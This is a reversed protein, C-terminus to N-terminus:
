QIQLLYFRRPGPPNLVNTLTLSFAGNASWTNTVVPTWQTSPLTLNTSTLVIYTTGSSGNAGEITLNTGSLKVGTVNPLASSVIISPGSAALALGLSNTVILAPSFLGTTSYVNTPNQVAGANGDGFSWNWGVIASGDSDANASEFYVRLPALGITPGAAFSQVTPLEVAGIDILGNQSRAYGRQDTAFPNAATSGAGIAPSGPLPPMTPAPGGYNGLPALHPAANLPAPGTVTGGNVNTVSQVLNSVGYAITGVEEVYIDAGSNGAVITNTMMVRGEDCYIGGGYSGPASNGSLTCGNLTLTGENGIGGGYGGPASNQSVTCENLIASGGTSLGGGYDGSRNGSLTCRNLTLNGVSYIGGGDGPTYGNSITLSNLVVTLGFYPVDFVESTGGGNIQLGGPLASADITLNTVIQLRSALMITAGSLNPAFVIVQGSNANTIAWRLTGPGSDAASTVLAIVSIAPGSVTLALGLSNTVIVSPSFVGPTSYVHSPNQVNTATGDGFSWNWQVIATGDSDANTCNLQTSLPALGNTPNAIFPQVAPREVAGLDIRGNQIRQHLRQDTAFTNATLSAAGIAPSGLLPPMTPTPGSYNGLPAIDPSNTLPAPGTITGNNGVSQVLNSGGYTITGFNVIDLDVNAENGAVITNTMMVIGGECAVGGGYGTLGLASNASLTCGDLIATGPTFISGNEIGGGVYYASNKALTCENLIVTGGNYIGGGSGAPAANGALTCQNLTLMGNNYIGGGDGSSNGNTITLSNLADTVGSAVVIATNQGNGNIQIGAPLGSADITLNTNISLTSSLMIAAGSLNPAFTITEGGIAAAMASRLSGPGSDAASDIILPAGNNALTGSVALALGLSNTVILNPLLIGSLSYVHTPNQVNTTTGDAFNWNWQVITTGDSDENTSDFQVNWSAAGLAPNATFPQVSPLEVAGIDVLGNQSRAYGRQDTAFPNAAVSGAGIAPSGPLPPMTPTPGGCNGLPALEPAANLPPPGTVPGGANYVSQVLNSGGYTLNGDTFIDAGYDASNGAAITNTITILGAYGFIGGGYGGPTSNGSLTCGNLVATRENFVGGGGYYASNEAFTCENLIVTGGNWIGGGYGADATSGALACQNLTLTGNNSVGGGDGSTYGNTITLANLVDTVGSPVSFVTVAGNGNIQIGGPLASADITLNTNIALTSALTITAGSLNTAFLITGEGSADMIASRLTGPGSDATNTVLAAVNIAPGSVALALGLSNTVILGPSFLGTAIYLHSVNQGAATTGDDFSWSWQAIGSGDSDTNTSEFFVRVPAVGMAPSATFPQVTPSEVAGIDILGNQSRAYGRQDTPFPNAAVSGAGIAPSGPWPPMTPTSGGYNGLPGLDPAANLPTPGYFSGFYSYFSQVLSTGEYNVSGDYGNYIDAGYYASNGAIITNLITVTGGEDNYIGGGFGGSNGSLTCEKLTLTDNNYIAAGGVNPGSNGALTCENLTATGGNFLGAGFDDPDTNGALTCENLTLTGNNVIGGGNGNSYGNTITLANLVATVGSAVTFVTNTGRGNIQIGGPLASADITVSNTLDITGNTEFIIEGSLAGAFTITSGPNAGAAVARLSGPGSDATNTVVLSAARGNLALGLWGAVGFILGLRRTLPAPPRGPNKM